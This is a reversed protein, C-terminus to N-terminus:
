FFLQLHLQEPLSKKTEWEFFSLLLLFFISISDPHRYNSSRFLLSVIFSFACHFFSFSFHLFPLFFSPIFPFLIWERKVFRFKSYRRTMTASETGCKQCKVLKEAPLCRNEIPNDQPFLSKLPLPIRLNLPTLQFAKKYSPLHLIRIAVLLAPCFSVRLPSPPSFIPFGLNKKLATGSADSDFSTIAM